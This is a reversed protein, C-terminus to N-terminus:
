KINVEIDLILNEKKRENSKLRNIFKPIAIQTFKIKINYNKCNISNSKAVYKSYNILTKYANTYTLINKTKTYIEEETIQNKEKTATLLLMKRIRIMEEGITHLSNSLLYDLVDYKTNFPVTESKSVLIPEIVEFVKIDNINNKNKFEYYLRDNNNPPPAFFGWKQYFFLNFTNSYKVFNISLYNDPVVFIITTIGYLFFLGVFLTSALYRIM